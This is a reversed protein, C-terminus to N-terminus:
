AVRGLQNRATTSGVLSGPEAAITAAAEWGFLRAIRRAIPGRRIRASNRRHRHKWAALAIRYEDEYQERVREVASTRLVFERGAAGAALSRAPDGIFSAVGQALAAWDGDRAIFGSSGHAIQEPIGGVRFAVVPTGSAFSELVTLPYNEARSPFLCVDAAAYADRLRGREKLFPEARGTLGTQRLLAESGSGVVLLQASAVREAVRHLARIADAGGKFPDTWSNGTMVITPRDPDLGFSRRLAARDAAPTFLDTDIPYRIVRLPLHRLEKVERVRDALWQSPTVLRPRAMRILWPKLRRYISSHDVRTMPYVGTLPCRGCSRRWRDCSRPTACNGTLPWFDHLTWVLPKDFSWLPLGLISLYEGHINHLHVVDAAAFDAHCRWLLTALRGLEPFGHKELWAALPRLRWYETKVCHPDGALNDRVFSRVTHGDTRLAEALREGARGAGGGTQQAAVMLVNLWAGPARHPTM